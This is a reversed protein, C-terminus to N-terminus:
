ERTQEFAQRKSKSRHCDGKEQMESFINDDITAAQIVPQETEEASKRGTSERGLESWVYNTYLM